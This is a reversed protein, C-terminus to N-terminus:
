TSHEEAVFLSAYCNSLITIIVEKKVEKRRVYISNCKTGGRVNCKKRDCVGVQVFKDNFTLADSDLM